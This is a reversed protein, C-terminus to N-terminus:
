QIILHSNIAQCCPESLLHRLGGGNKHLRDNRFLVYGDLEVLRNSVNPKLWSESVLIVDCDKGGFVDRFEDIHCLLSQTNVHAVRLRGPFPSVALKLLDGASLAATDSNDQQSSM